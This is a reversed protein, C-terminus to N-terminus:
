IDYKLIFNKYVNKYSMGSYIKRITPISTKYKEVLNKITLKNIFRDILILEVQQNTFKSNNNNEGSVDRSKQAIISTENIKPFAKIFDNTIKKYVKGNLINYILSESVNNYKAIEFVSINENHYMYFIDEVNKIKVSVQKRNIKKTNYKNILNITELKYTKGKLLRKISEKHLDIDLIKKIESTSLNKNYYLDFIYEIKNEPIKSNYINIGSKFSSRKFGNFNKEGGDTQNYITNNEKYKNIIEIEKLLLDDYSDLVENVNFEFNEEGYKKIALIISRKTNSKIESKYRYLRKRLNKAIGIYKKNNITNTIIYLCNNKDLNEKWNGSFGIDFSKKM